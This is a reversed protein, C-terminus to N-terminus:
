HLMRDRIALVREPSPSVISVATKPSMPRPQGDVTPMAGLGDGGMTM